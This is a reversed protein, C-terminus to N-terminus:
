KEIGLIQTSFEHVKNLVNKVNETTLELVPRAKFWGKTGFNWKGPGDLGIKNNKLDLLVSYEVGKGDHVGNIKLLGDKYEFGEQNNFNLSAVKLLDSIGENYKEENLEILAKALQPNKYFSSDLKEFIKYFSPDNYDKGLDESVAFFTKIKEPPWDERHLKIFELKEELNDETVINEIGYQKIDDKTIKFSDLLKEKEHSLSLYEKIVRNQFQHWNEDDERYIYTDGIQAMDPIKDFGNDDKIDFYKIPGETDLQRGIYRNELKIEERWFNKNKFPHKAEEILEKFYKIKNKEPIKDLEGELGYEEIKWNEGDLDIKVTEDDIKIQISDKLQIVVIDEDEEETSGLFEKIQPRAKKLSMIKVEGEKEKIHHANERLQEETVAQPEYHSEAKETSWTGDANLKVVNGEYVLNKVSEDEVEGINKVSLVRVAKQLLKFRDQNNVKVEDGLVNHIFNDVRQYDQNNYAEKAAKYIAESFTDTKGEIKVEIPEASKEEKKVIIEERINEAEKEEPQVSHEIEKSSVETRSFESSKSLETTASSSIKQYIKSIEQYENDSIKGDKVAEKLTNEIKIRAEQSDADQRSKLENIFNNIKRLYNVSSKDQSIIEKTEEPTGGLLSRTLRDIKTTISPKEQILGSSLLEETKEAIAKGVMGSAWGISFGLAYASFKRLYKLKGETLREKIEKTFEKDTKDDILSDLANKVLFERARERIVPYQDLVGSKLLTYLKVKEKKDIEKQKLIRDVDTVVDEIMDEKIRRKMWSDVSGGIALGSILGSFIYNANPISSFSNIVGATLGLFGGRLAARRKAGIKIKREKDKLLDSFMQSNENAVLALVSLSNVLKEQKDKELSKLEENHDIFEQILRKYEEIKTEKGLHSADIIKNVLSKRLEQLLIIKINEQSLLEKAKKEKIKRFKKLNDKKIKELIPNFRERAWARVFGASAGLIGGALSGAAKTIMGGGAVRVGVGAAGAVLSILGGALLIRKHHRWVKSFEREAERNVADDLIVATNQIILEREEDTLNEAGKLNKLIDLIDKKSKEEIKIEGSKDVEYKIEFELDEVKVKFGLEELYEEITKKTTTEEQSIEEKVEETKPKEKNTREKDKEIEKSKELIENEAKNIAAIIDKELVVIKQKKQIEDERIAEKGSRVKKLLSELYEKRAQPNSVYDNEIKNFIEEFVMKEDNEQEIVDEEKSEKKADKFKEELEKKSKTEQRKEKFEEKSKTAAERIDFVKYGGDAIIQRMEDITKKEKRIKGKNSYFVVGLKKDKDNYFIIKFRPKRRDAPLWEEQLHFEDEIEKLIASVKETPREKANEQKERQIDKKDKGGLKEFSQRKEVFDEKTIPKPEKIEENKKSQKELLKDQKIKKIQKIRERVEQIFFNKFREAYKFAGMEKLKQYVELVEKPTNTEWDENLEKLSHNWWNELFELHALPLNKYEKLLYESEEEIKELAKEYKIETIMDKVETNDLYYSKMEEYLNILDYLLMKQEEINKAERIWKNLEKLQDEKYNFNIDLKEKKNKLIRILSAIEWVLYNTIGEIKSPDGEIEDKIEKVKKRLNDFNLLIPKFEDM